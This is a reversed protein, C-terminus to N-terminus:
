EAPVPVEELDQETLSYGRLLLISVLATGAPIIGFCLKIALVAGESQVATGGSHSAAYGMGSLLVGMMTLGFASSLKDILSMFGSFAGERRHGTLIYDYRIADTLMSAALLVVGSMAAGILTVRIALLVLTDGPGAFVWSFVSLGYLALAGVYANKKDFRKSLRLWLPLAAINGLSLFIYFSGLWADTRHLVYRTFYANSSSATAVGIMFIIHVFVMTRFPKNRWAIKLQDRMKHAVGLSRETARARRLLPVSVISLLFIAGAIVLAMSGHGARGGGWSALLWPPVSSGLIQGFFGGYTKFTLLTSRAHYDDTVEVSMAASPVSYLAYATGQLALLVGIYVVLAVESEFHPVNFLGIIALPMLIASAFMFPRRRGWRSHAHDSVYGVVPNIVGDYIQIVAFIGAAIAASIALDDTLFRILLVAIIQNAAYMAAAGLAFAWQVSRGPVSPRTMQDTRDTM